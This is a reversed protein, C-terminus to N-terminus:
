VAPEKAREQLRKAEEPNAEEFEAAETEMMQLRMQQMPNMQPLAKTEAIDKLHYFYRVSSIM